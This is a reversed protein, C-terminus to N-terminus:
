DVQSESPMFRRVFKSADVVGILNLQSKSPSDDHVGLASVITHVRREDLFSAKSISNYDIEVIDVGLGAKADSGILFSAQASLSLYPRM